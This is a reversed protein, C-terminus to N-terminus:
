LGLLGPLDAMKHFVQAGVEALGTGADHEAFGLCRMGAARAAKAGSISDEVVVCDAPAVGLAAAAHLYVDPAPKPANLTQASYIHGRFREMLGPHQGMTIEMKRPPGNSGMAYPIKTADLADLVTLIGPILPTHNELAAFMRAYQAPVWDDPLPVGRDRATQWFSRMTGGLFMARMQDHSMPHGYLSLEAALLDFAIGESDMVVGDCDFIVAQVTLIKIL